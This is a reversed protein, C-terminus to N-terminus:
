LNVFGGVSMTWTNKCRLCQYTRHHPAGANERSVPPTIEIAQLSPCGEERCKMHHVKPQPASAGTLGPSTGAPDFNAM